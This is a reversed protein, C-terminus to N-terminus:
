LLKLYEQQYDRMWTLDDNPYKIKFLDYVLKFNEEDTLPRPLHADIIDFPDFHWGDRDARNKAFQNKGNTRNHFLIRDKFPELRKKLYWQDYCWQTGRINDSEIPDILEAVHEQFTKNIGMVEHWQMVPMAAYCMPYQDEPTLDAGVIHIQGDNLNSFFDTFVAMDSDATIMVHNGFEWLMPLAAGFHRIVQSYTPIRQEECEFEVFFSNKCYKKATEIKPNRGKPVFIVCYFGLKTWSHVAFPLPMAYFDHETASLVAIM